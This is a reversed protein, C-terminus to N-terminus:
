ATLASTTLRGFFRWPLRSRDDLVVRSVIAPRDPFMQAKYCLRISARYANARWATMGPRHPLMSDPIELNRTQHQRVMGSHRQYPIYAGVFFRLSHGRKEDFM